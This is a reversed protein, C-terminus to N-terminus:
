ESGGINNVQQNNIKGVAGEIKCGSKNILIYILLMYVLQKFMTACECKLIDVSLKKKM